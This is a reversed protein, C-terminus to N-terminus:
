TKAVENLWGAYATGSGEEAIDRLLAEREVEELSVARVLGDPLISVGQELVQRIGRRVDAVAVQNEFMAALFASVLKSAENGLARALKARTPAVGSELEGDWGGLMMSLEAVVGDRTYYPVGKTGFWPAREEARDMVSEQFGTWQHVASLFAERQVTVQRAYDKLKDDLPFEEFGSTELCGIIVFSWYPAFIDTALYTPSSM